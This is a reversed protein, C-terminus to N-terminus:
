HIFVNSVFLCNNEITIFYKAFKEKLFDWDIDEETDYNNEFITSILRSTDYLHHWCNIPNNDKNENILKIRINKLWHRRCQDHSQKMQDAVLYWDIDDSINENLYEKSQFQRKIAAIFRQNDEESWHNLSRRRRQYEIADLQQLLSDVRSNM